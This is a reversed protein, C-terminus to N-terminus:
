KLSYHTDKDKQRETTRDTKRDKQKETKRDKQRDTKRVRPIDTQRDTQRLWQNYEKIERGIYDKEKWKIM